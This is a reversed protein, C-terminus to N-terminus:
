EEIKEANLHEREEEDLLEEEQAQFQEIDGIVDNIHEILKQLVPEGYFMELEYVSELHERLNYLMGSIEEVEENLLSSEHLLNAVYWILGINLLISLYLFFPWPGLLMILLVSNLIASVILIYKM